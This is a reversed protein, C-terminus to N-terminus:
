NKLYLSVGNESLDFKILNSLQLEKAKEDIKILNYNEDEGIFTYINEM